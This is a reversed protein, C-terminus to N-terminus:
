EQCCRQTKCFVSSNNYQPQSGCLHMRSLSKSSVVELDRGVLAVRHNLAPFSRWPFLHWFHFDKMEMSFSGSFDGTLEKDSPFLFLAGDDMARCVNLALRSPSRPLRIQHNADRGHCPQFQITKLAGELRLWGMSSQNSSRGQVYPTDVNVNGSQLWSGSHGWM